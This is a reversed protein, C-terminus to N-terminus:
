VKLQFIYTAMHWTVQNLHKAYSSTTNILQTNIFSQYSKLKPNDFFNPENFTPCYLLYRHTM